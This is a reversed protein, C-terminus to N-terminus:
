YPHPGSTSTSTGQGTGTGNGTPPGGSPRTTTCVMPSTATGLTCTTRDTSSYDGGASAYGDGGSFDDGYDGGGGDGGGGSDGSFDDSLDEGDELMGGSVISIEDLSLVRLM